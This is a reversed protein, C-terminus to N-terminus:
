YIWLGQFEFSFFGQFRLFFECLSVADYGLLDSEENLVISTKL